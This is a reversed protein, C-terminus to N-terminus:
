VSPPIVSAPGLREALRVLDDGTLTDSNMMIFTDRLTMSLQAQPWTATRDRVRMSRDGREVDRGETLAHDEETGAAVQTVNVQATADRSRYHLGVSPHVLPRESGGHLTTALEWDPPPEAITFVTFPVEAAAEHVAIGHRFRHVDGIRRVAEGEPPRFAFLAPGLAADFSIALVEAVHLPRGDHRAETRLLVGREADVDLRYEHAGLGLHHLAFGDAGRGERRRPRAEVILVPRGAREGRGMVMFDLHGLLEAPDLMALFPEGAGQSHHEDGDNTLAGMRPSYSWWTTGVRIVLRSDDGDVEQRLRDPSQWCFRVHQEHEPSAPTQDPGFSVTQGGQSRAHELFARRVRADHRWVRWRSDVTTVRDAAGHLLELLDGPESV